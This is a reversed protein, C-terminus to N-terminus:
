NVYFPVNATAANGQGDRIYVFLRYAGSKGPSKFVVNEGHQSEILQPFSSPKAEDDGGSRRDTSEAMVVWEFDLTDDDPDKVIVKASYEKGGQIRTEAVETEIAKLKPSRNEPFEKNWAYAMADVAPLREGTSLFMGYWTSTTEQKYGWLFAYTGLCKGQGDEIVATQTAYYNAAKAQSTAEIPAGWNTKAVEWHGVPGFETLVFPKDWGASVLGSGIGAAGGYANCGLVDIEPYYRQIGKVKTEGAGAIVTMVPHNSDESKIIKALANLEKWITPDSGDSTPGEMENGLGWMLVAPHDKYKKVVERVHDRQGKVSKRDKYNFGHREHQVWIGVTIMIGNEACYDVLRVGDVMEELAEPSWTRISNGGMEKLMDLEQHGGVGKIFFPVGDVEM